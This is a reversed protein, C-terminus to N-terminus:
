GIRKGASPRRVPKKFKAPPTPWFGPLAACTVNGKFVVLKWGPPCQRLKAPGPPYAKGQNGVRVNRLARSRATRSLRHAM